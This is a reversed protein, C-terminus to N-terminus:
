KERAIRLAQNTILMRHTCPTRTNLHQATNNGPNTNSDKLM